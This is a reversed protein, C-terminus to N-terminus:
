TGYEMSRSLEWGSSGSASKMEQYAKFLTGDFLYVRKETLDVLKQGNQSVSLSVNSTVATDNFAFGTIMVGSRNGNVLVDLTDPTLYEKWHDATKKQDAYCFQLILM